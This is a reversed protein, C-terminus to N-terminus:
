QVGLRALLQRADEVSRVIAYIGGLRNILSEHAIQDASQRGRPTKLEVEIYRGQYLGIYDATGATLGYRIKRKEDYGAANRWLVLGTGGCLVELVVPALQSELVNYHCTNCVGDANWDRYRRPCVCGKTAIVLDGLPLVSSSGAQGGNGM